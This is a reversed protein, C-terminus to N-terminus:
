QGKEMQDFHNQVNENQKDKYLVNKLMRTEEEFNKINGTEKLYSWLM